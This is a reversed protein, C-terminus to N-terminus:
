NRLAYGVATGLLSRPLATAQQEQLYVHLKELIPWAQEQRLRQRALVDLHRDGATREIGYLQGIIALVQACPVAATPM